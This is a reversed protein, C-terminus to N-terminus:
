VMSDRWALHSAYAMLIISLGPLEYEFTILYSTLSKQASDFCYGNPHATDHLSFGNLPMYYRNTYESMDHLPVRHIPSVCVHDAVGLKMQPDIALGDVTSTITM